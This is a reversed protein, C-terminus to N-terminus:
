KYIIHNYYNVIQRLMVDSTFSQIFKAYANEVMQQRENNNNHIWEINESLKKTDKVPFLLGTKGHTILDPVGGVEAAITIVKLAFAEIITIPLVENLSPLIFVDMQAFFPTVNQQFGIFKVKSSLGKSAVAVELEERLPGEGIIVCEFDIGKLESLAEILYIVGKEVSLRGIFGIQFKGDRQRSDIKDDVYESTDIGNYIVRIYEPSICATRIFHQKNNESNVIIGNSFKYILFYLFPYIRRQLRGLGEHIIANHLSCCIKKRFFINIVSFLFSCNTLHTNIIDIKKHKLLGAITRIGQISKYNISLTLINEKRLMIALPGEPLVVTVNHGENVLGKAITAFVRQAGGIKSCGIALLINRTKNM